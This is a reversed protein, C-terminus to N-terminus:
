RVNVPDVGCDVFTMSTTIKFSSGSAHREANFLDFTGPSPRSIDQSLHRPPM